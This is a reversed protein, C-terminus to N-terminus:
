RLTTPCAIGPWLAAIKCTHAYLSTSSLVTALCAGETSHVRQLVSAPSPAWGRLRLGRPTKSSYNNCKPAERSSRFSKARPPRGRGAARRSGRGSRGGGGRREASGRAGEGRARRNSDRSPSCRVAASPPPREGSEGGDRRFGDSADRGPSFGWGAPSHGGRGVASVSM